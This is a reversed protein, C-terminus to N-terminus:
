DESEMVFEKPFTDQVQGCAICIEIKIYDGGGIGLGEPVYGDKEHEKYQVFCLDSCKANVKIIEDKGCRKCM